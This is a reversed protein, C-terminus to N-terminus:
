GPWAGLLRRVIVIQGVHYATHDAVLLIERIYTQKENGHPTSAFLDIAPDLALQQLADRDRGIADISAQWEKDNAPAAAKPWYDAPWELEKYDPKVCFDLIDRQTIRIHELLQWVSYPLGPPTIGRLGAPLKDVSQELTAHAEHWDLFRALQQRYRDPM